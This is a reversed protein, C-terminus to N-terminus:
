GGAKLAGVLAALVEAVKAPLGAPVPPIAGGGAVARLFPAVASLPPPAQEEMQALAEAVEPALPRGAARAQYAEQALALIFRALQEEEERRGQEGVETGEGRRLRELEAVKADRKAQWAAAARADGRDRAIRALNGYVKYVDPLGLSERIELSKLATEEARDLDGLLSHLVGLQAYSAAANVQSGLELWVALSEEVSVVAQRLLAARATPDAAAQARTQYLIGVNQAVVAQHYRDGLQLALERSRAYWAEAAELHGRLMEAIALLDCTQMEGAQNGARQFLAIAQHYLDAARDHHSLDDQLSGQHALLTGQLDLDGAARAADFAEAYRAEAEAYRQQDVLISAIIGLGNAVERGYGLDRNIALGRQAADLAADLRGLARYANALDGLAVALNGRAADGPLREFRTIAEQAPEVALDPRRANVYIQGLTRYGVAIQFAPDEGGTLGEAELRAILEQVQRIAEAAHGQTFLSWAHQRTAACAAEDLAGDEPMQAKVWGALADRDRLRGARELYVGLTGALWGGEQRAGRRFARLMAARLNAEEAALLAMGAAPQRGRLAGDAAQMVALYVDIFREELDPAGAPRAAHALTPHFRLYPRDGVLMDDEIGILATAVLEARVPEWAAPELNAFNLVSVEFAGGEFWALYPLAEQAAPSLHRKSFELSALLSKNRAEFADGDAFRDLLKGYDALIAAPALEKLHPAVLEISLPHDALADLLRDIAPREYGPRNTSIGKIDLVAALLYLSDPRALGALPLDKIGALGTEAPRCTVLLRGAPLGREAATLDRYLQQLRARADASFSLISEGQQGEPQVISRDGGGQQGEPQGRVPIQTV